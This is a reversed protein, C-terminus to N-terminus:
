SIGTTPIRSIPLDKLDAGEILVPKWRRDLSNICKVFDPLTISAISIAHGYYGTFSELERQLTPVFYAQAKPHKLTFAIAKYEEANTTDLSLKIGYNLQYKLV